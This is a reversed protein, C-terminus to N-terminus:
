CEMAKIANVIKEMQMARSGKVLVVDNYSVRKVIEQAFTESDLAYVINRDELLNLNKAAACFRRGVLGVLDIHASCCCRKLIMKHSELEIAGLELMDGLVVIRKGGCDIDISELLDIAAKTSVPNANYADNVIKMGNRGVELESRMHVPSFASLRNGIESLSVGLLTAVAAAACANLALHLGPSAIVFEVMEQHNQLVVRVGLGGDTSESAVLRVDCGVRHGFLVKKVGLPVPLNMVLPDDANLVCVDGPKAEALIEGKAMGIEELSSFNQFHSAGVNLIVRITPRAMRALELIEGKGSMGMELVVIGTGAPVGILSLAVGIESNWNGHSQHVHLVLGRSSQNQLALAIMCKTSTKGVSGTVGVVEGHFRNRAYSAMKTLSIVTNGDFQVFGKDWNECVRNGIVGACGKNRSLEPTIFDHADFNLGAIAFFWQNPQLTRTDTSVTGPPGWKVIRGNVADAIESATWTPNPTNPSSPNISNRTVSISHRSKIISNTFLHPFSSPHPTAGAAATASM